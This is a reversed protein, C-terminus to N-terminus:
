IIGHKRILSKVKAVDLITCNYNAFFNEGVEINSGYDCFFPPEVFVNDGTKGFLGKLMDPIRDYQDPHIHNLEYTKRKCDRRERSLEEDFGLYPLEALMREKQNMSIKGREKRSSVNNKMSEM